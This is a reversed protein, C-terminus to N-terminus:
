SPRCCSRPGGSIDQREVPDNSDSAWVRDTIELIGLDTRAGGSSCSEIELGPHDAKLRAILAYAALTQVHTGPRGVGDAGVHVPEALDRNHDWKIFDIGLETVLASIQGRVHEWAEPVALDLM